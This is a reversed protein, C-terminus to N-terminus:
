HMKNQWNKQLDQLATLYEDKEIEGLFYYKNYIGVFDQEEKSGSALGPYKQSRYIYFVQEGTPIQNVVDQMYM